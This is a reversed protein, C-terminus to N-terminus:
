LKCFRDDGDINGCRQLAFKVDIVDFALVLGVRLDYNTIEIVIGASEMHVNAVASLMDSVTAGWSVPEVDWSFFALWHLGGGGHNLLLLVAVFYGSARRVLTGIAVLGAEAVAM